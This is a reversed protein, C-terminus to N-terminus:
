LEQRRQLAQPVDRAGPLEHLVPSHQRGGGQPVATRWGSVRPQSCALFPHSALSTPLASGGRERAPGERLRWRLENDGFSGLLESVLIDAQDPAQWVRMDAFVLTVRDEWGEKKIM